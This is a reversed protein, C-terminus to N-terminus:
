AQQQWHRLAQDVPLVKCGAALAARVAFELLAPTCGWASPQAEVDHTYFILWGQAAAAREVLATIREPTIASQYLRESPLANLDTAAVQLGGGTIRSTVFAQSALHKSALDLAGLPFSFHRDKPPVGAEDLFRANRALEAAMEARSLMTCPTHSFTHCGVHHGQAVLTQVDKLAHCLRGQEPQDTLGGAIYWTGHVQHRELVERGTTCATRPADDFSFSVVGVPGKLHLMRRQTRLALWRQLKLNLSM